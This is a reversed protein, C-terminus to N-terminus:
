DGKVALKEATGDGDTYGTWLTTNDINANQPTITLENGSIKVVVSGHLDTRYLTMDREVLRDLAEYRPHGHKPGLGCSIIAYECKVFDLFQDCSSTDSGHHAVKLVDCDLIDIGYFTKMAQVRAPESYSKENSDGTLVIKKGNYQLICVPSLGNLLYATNVKNDDWQQQSWCFIDMKWGEGSLTFNGITLMIECNPESLAAIFFNAYTATSVTDPDTFKALKTSDLAAVQEALAANSPESKINPM